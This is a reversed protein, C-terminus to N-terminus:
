HRPMNGFNSSMSILTYILTGTKNGNKNFITVGVVLVVVVVGFVIVVM